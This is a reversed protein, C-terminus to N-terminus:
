SKTQFNKASSSKKIGSFPVYRGRGLSPNPRVGSNSRGGFRRVQTSRGSVAFKRPFYKQPATICHVPCCLLACPVAHVAPIACGSAFFFGVLSAGGLCLLFCCLSGCSLSPSARYASSSSLMATCEGESKINKYSGLFIKLANKM